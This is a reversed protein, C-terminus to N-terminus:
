GAYKVSPSAAARERMSCNSWVFDPRPRSYRKSQSSSALRRSTVTSSASGVVM